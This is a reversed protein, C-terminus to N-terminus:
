ATGHLGDIFRGFPDDNAARLENEAREIRQLATDLAARLEAITSETRAIYAAVAAAPYMDTAVPLPPLQPREVDSTLLPTVETM